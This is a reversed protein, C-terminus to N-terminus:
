QAAGIGYRTKALQEEVFAIFARAKPGAHRGGPLVAWLDLRPLEWDTLAEVVRGDDLEETFIWESAVAVGLGALVASRVGELASIRLRPKLGIERAVGDKIFAMQEGGEGRSLVIAAHDGLDEPQRPTGHRAFYDPKAVVVRRCQGIRRAVLNSSPLKGMRLAVEAGEEILGVNGDDLLLDIDLGPHKDLFGPLRPIIHRRVFTITGSVRLRGTLSAPEGRVAKLALEAEDLTRVAHEYFTRAADTPTLGRTSRLFLKTALKEELQAISKSVAPQGLALHTAAVSFSGSEYVRVFSRMASILDM